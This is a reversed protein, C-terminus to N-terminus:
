APGGVRRSQLGESVMSRGWAGSSADRSSSPPLYLPAPKPSPKRPLKGTPSLSSNSVSSGLSSQRRPSPPPSAIFPLPAGENLAITEQYALARKPFVGYAARMSREISKEATSGVGPLKVALQM